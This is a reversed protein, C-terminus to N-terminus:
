RHLLDRDGVRMDIMNAAGRPQPRLVKFGAKAIGAAIDDFDESDRGRSPLLVILAGSGESILDIAVNDYRVIERRREGEAMAVAGMALISLFAASLRALEQIAM